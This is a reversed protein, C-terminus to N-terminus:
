GFLLLVSWPLTEVFQCGLIWDQNHQRCRRVRIQVWPLEDTAESARVGLITGVPVAQNLSLQLGGKSRNLVLGELPQDPSAPNSVAVKVPNGQRRMSARREKKTLPQNVPQRIANTSMSDLGVRSKLLGAADGQQQYRTPASSVPSHGCVLNGLFLVLGGLLLLFTFAEWGYQYLDVDSTVEAVM